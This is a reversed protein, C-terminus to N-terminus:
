IGHSAANWLAIVVSVYSLVRKSRLKMHKMIELSTNGRQIEQENYNIIIDRFRLSEAM